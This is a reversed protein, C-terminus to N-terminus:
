DHKGNRIDPIKPKGPQEIYFVEIDDIHVRFKEGDLETVNTVEAEIVVYDSVVGEIKGIILFPFQFILLLARNGRNKQFYGSVVSQRVNNINIMGDGLENAIKALDDSM